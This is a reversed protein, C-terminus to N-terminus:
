GRRHPYLDPRLIERKIGTVREIEIVHHAPVRSWQSLAQKTIKIAAALAAASGKAEIAKALGRDM